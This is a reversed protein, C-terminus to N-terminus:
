IEFLFKSEDEEEPFKELYITVAKELDKENLIVFDTLILNEDDASKFRVGDWIGESDKYIVKLKHIEDGVEDKIKKLVDEMDNTVSLRGVEGRDEIFLFGELIEYDYTAGIDM